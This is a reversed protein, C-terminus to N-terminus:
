QLPSLWMPGVLMYRILQIKHQSVLTLGDRHVLCAFLMSGLCLAQVEELSQSPKPASQLFAKELRNSELIWYSCLGEMGLGPM